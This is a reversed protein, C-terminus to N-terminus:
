NGLLAARVLASFCSWRKGAACCARRPLRERTERAPESAVARAWARRISRHYRSRHTRRRSGAHRFNVLSVATLRRSPTDDSAILATRPIAFTYTRQRARGATVGFIFKAHSVRRRLCLSFAHTGHAFRRGSGGSFYRASHASKSQVMPLPQVRLHPRCRCLRWRGRRSISRDGGALIASVAFETM